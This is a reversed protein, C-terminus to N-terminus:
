YSLQNLEELGYLMCSIHMSQVIENRRIMAKLEEVTVEFVEIDEQEDLQQAGARKGGTALFMHFLNSNTSPNPSVKGLYEFSRFTYGTEEKLERSVAAELDKDDPDVCGGPIEICMEGLAHRYQRILVIKGEDTVPLAGVWPTFDYVYYPDIIKGEPTECREKRVKFWRDTFLYASSLVKWKM